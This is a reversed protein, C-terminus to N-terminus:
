CYEALPAAASCRLWENDAGRTYLLLHMDDPGEPYIDTIRTEPDHGTHDHPATYMPEHVEASGPRTSPLSSPTLM